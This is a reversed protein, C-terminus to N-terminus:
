GTKVTKVTEWQAFRIYHGAPLSLRYRGRDDTTTAHPRGAHDAPRFVVTAHRAVTVQCSTVGAKTTCSNWRAVGVVLASKPLDARGLRVESIVKHREITEVKQLSHRAHILAWIAVALLIVLLAARGFARLDIEYRGIRMARRYAQAVQARRGKTILCLVPTRTQTPGVTSPHFGDEGAGM